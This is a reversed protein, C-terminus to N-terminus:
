WTAATMMLEALRQVIVKTKSGLLEKAKTLIAISAEPITQAHGRAACPTPSKPPRTKRGSCRRSLGGAAGRRDRVCDIGRSFKGLDEQSDTRGFVPLRVELIASSCSTTTAAFTELTTSSVLQRMRGTPLVWRGYFVSFPGRTVFPDDLFTM